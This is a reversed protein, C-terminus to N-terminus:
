AGVSESYEPHRSVFEEVTIRERMLGAIRLKEVIAIWPMHPPQVDFTRARIIRNRYEKWDDDNEMWAEKAVLFAAMRPDDARFETM